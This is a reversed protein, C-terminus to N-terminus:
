YEASWACVCYPYEKQPKKGRYPFSGNCKPNPLKVSKIASNIEFVQGEFEKFYGCGTNNDGGVIKVTEVGMSKMSRLNMEHSRRMLERPDKGEETLQIAMEWYTFALAQFNGEQLEDLSRRNLEEWKEDENKM